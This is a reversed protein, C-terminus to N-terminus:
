AARRHSRDFMRGSGVCPGVRGPANLDVGSEAILVDFTVHRGADAAAREDDSATSKSALVARTFAALYATMAPSLPPDSGNATYGEGHQNIWHRM